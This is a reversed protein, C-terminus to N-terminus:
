KKLFNIDDSNNLLLVLMPVVVYSISTAAAVVGSDNVMFGVVSGVLIAIWGNAIYPHKQCLKKLVGFPKYFLMVMLIIALILVRSWMSASILQINMSIKRIIIQLIASPGTNIITLITNALHSRNENNFDMWAMFSVILIIAGFIGIIKKIDIKIGNSKLILFLFAASITITGGVNAGMMPNGMIFVVALAFPLLIINKFGFKEFFISITILSAGVLVGMYENGIGYFRAGIIPDYGLLSNKILFQNFVAMDFLLIITTLGSLIAITNLDNKILKSIIAYGVTLFLLGIILSYIVDAFNFIPIILIVLPILLTIRLIFKVARIVIKPVKAYFLGIVLTLIWVCMEFVAYTYLVPIRVSSLSVIKQNEAELFTWPNEYQKEVIPKGSIEPNILEFRNNIYASIDINSIVGDRRTSASTLVGLGEENENLIYVPSLRYGEKYNELSPFPSVVMLSDNKSLENEVNSIFSDIRNILTGKYEEYASDTMMKKYEDLRYSDGLEIVVIDSSKYQERFSILLKDYDTRISYPAEYDVINVDDINGSNIRGFTDMAIAGSFLLPEEKDSNGIVSIKLDNKKAIEGLNGPIAGFDSESNTQILTNINLNSIKSPEEKTTFKYHNSKAVDSYDFFTLDKNLVYSKRGWGISAYSSADNTGKAGRINMLGIYGQNSEGISNISKFDELDLRNATIIILKENKPAKNEAFVLSQAFVQILFVFLIISIIKKNKM